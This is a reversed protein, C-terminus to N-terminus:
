RLNKQSEDCRREKWCQKRWVWPPVPKAEQWLGRRAARADNEAAYIEASLRVPNTRNAMAHGGRVQALNANVSGAYVHCVSRQYMDLEFCEARAPKKLVLAQLAKRADRGHPQGPREAGHPTEPADIDSFRIKHLQNRGDRIRVTDGDDVSVVVGEIVFEVKDSFILAKAGTSSLAKGKPGSAAAPFALLAAALYALPLKM